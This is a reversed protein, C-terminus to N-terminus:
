QSFWKRHTTFYYVAEGNEWTDTYTYSISVEFETKLYDRTHRENVVDNVYNLWLIYVQNCLIFKEGESLTQIINPNLLNQVKQHPILYDEVWTQADVNDPKKRSFYLKDFLNDAFNEILNTFSNDKVTMRIIM